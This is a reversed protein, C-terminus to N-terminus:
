LGEFPCKGDEPGDCLDDLLICDGPHLECKRSEIRIAPARPPTHSETNLKKITINYGGLANLKKQEEVTPLFYSIQSPEPWVQSLELYRMVATRVQEISNSNFYSYWENVEVIPDPPRGPLNLEYLESIVESLQHKMKQEEDEMEVLWQARKKLDEIDGPTPWFHSKRLHMGVAKGIVRFDDGGFFDLWIKITSKPDKPENALGAGHLEQLILKIETDTM